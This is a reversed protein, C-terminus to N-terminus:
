WKTKMKRFYIKNIRTKLETPSAFAHQMVTTRLEKETRTRNITTENTQQIATNITQQKRKIWAGYKDLVQQPTWGTKPLIMRLNSTKFELRPHKVNRYEVTYETQNPM